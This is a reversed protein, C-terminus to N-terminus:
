SLSLMIFPAVNRNMIISLGIHIWIQRTGFVQHLTEYQVKCVIPYMMVLLGVASINNATLDLSSADCIDQKGIPVSVNVFKGRHLAAEARNVYNGTLIGIIIALLIWLALLRDLWGL